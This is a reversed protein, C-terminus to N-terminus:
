FFAYYVNLELCGGSNLNMILISITGKYGRDNIHSKLLIEGFVKAHALCAKQVLENM